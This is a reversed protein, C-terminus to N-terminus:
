DGGSSEMGYNKVELKLKKHTGRLRIGTYITPSSDAHIPMSNDYEIVMNAPTMEEVLARMSLQQSYLKLHTSVRLSYREFDKIIMFNEGCLVTLKKILMKVTYPLAVFWGTQVRARRSELTDDDYPTIGLLKEYREIGGEDATSIFENRLIGDKVSWIIAFEPDESDLAAAIEKYEQLHPPLYSKLKPERIM